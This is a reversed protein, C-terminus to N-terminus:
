WKNLNKNKKYRIYIILGGIIALILFSGAGIIIWMITNKNNSSTQVKVPKVVIEEIQYDVVKYTFNLANSDLGNKLKNSM